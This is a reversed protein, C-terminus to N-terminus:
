NTLLRRKPDGAFNIIGSEVRGQDAMELRSTRVLWIL